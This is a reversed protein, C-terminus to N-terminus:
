RRVRMHRPMQFFAHQQRRLRSGQFLSCAFRARWGTALSSFSLTGRHSRVSRHRGADYDRHENVRVWGCGGVPEGCSKAEHHAQANSIVANLHFGAIAAEGNRFAINYGVVRVNHLNADLISLSMALTRPLVAGEDQTFRLVVRVALSLVVRLVKVPVAPVEGFRDFIDSGLFPAATRKM